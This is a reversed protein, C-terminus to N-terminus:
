SSEKLVLGAPVVLDGTQTITDPPQEGRALHPRFAANTDLVLNEM